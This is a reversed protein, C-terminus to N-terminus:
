GEIKTFNTSKLNFGYDSNAPKLHSLKVSSGMQLHESVSAERWLSLSVKRSEKQLLINRLPIAERGRWICKLASVGVIEGQVTILGQSQECDALNTEISSPYILEAAEKKLDENIHLAGTRFFLSKKNIAITYPPEKGMLNHGKLIYSKGETFRSAFEEFVTIKSVSHGDSIAAVKNSKVVAPYATDEQFKWSVVKPRDAVAVVCIHLQPPRFYPTDPKTMLLQHLAM